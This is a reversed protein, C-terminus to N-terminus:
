LSLTVHCNSGGRKRGGFLLSLSSWWALDCESSEAGAYKKTRTLSARSPTKRTPATLVKSASCFETLLPNM